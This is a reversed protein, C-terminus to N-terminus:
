RKGMDCSISTSRINSQTQSFLGLVVYPTNCLESPIQIDLVFPCKAGLSAHSELVYIAVIGKTGVHRFILEIAGM